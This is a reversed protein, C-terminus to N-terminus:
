LHEKLWENRCLVNQWAAETGSKVVFLRDGEALHAALNDRIQKSSGESVVAWSSQTIRAWAGYEKIAAILPGYDGGERVDYSIIYCAM